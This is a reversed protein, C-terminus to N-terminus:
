QGTDWNMMWSKTRGWHQASCDETIRHQRLCRQKRKDDSLSTKGSGTTTSRGTEDSSPYASERKYLNEAGQVPIPSCHGGPSAGSLFWQFSRFRWASCRPFEMIILGLLGIGSQNEGIHTKRCNMWCEVLNNRRRKSWSIAWKELKSWGNSRWGEVTWFVKATQLKQGTKPM